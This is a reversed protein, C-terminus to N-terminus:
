RKKSDVPDNYIIMEAGLEDLIAATSEWPVAFRGSNIRSCCTFDPYDMLQSTFLKVLRAATKRGCKPKLPRQCRKQYRELYGRPCGEAEWIGEFHVFV